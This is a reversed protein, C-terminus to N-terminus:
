LEPFCIAFLDDKSVTAKIKDLLKIYRNKAHNKWNDPIASNGNLNYIALKFMQMTSAYKQIDSKYLDQVELYFVSQAENITQFICSDMVANMYIGAIEKAFDHDKIAYSFIGTGGTRDCCELDLMTGSYSGPIHFSGKNNCSYRWGNIEYDTQVGNHFYNMEFDGDNYQNISGVQHVEFVTEADSISTCLAGKYKGLSFIPKSYNQPYDM